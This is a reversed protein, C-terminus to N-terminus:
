PIPCLYSLAPNLSIRNTAKILKDNYPFNYVEIYINNMSKKTFATTNIYMKGIPEGKLHKPCSELGNALFRNNIMYERGRCNTHLIM